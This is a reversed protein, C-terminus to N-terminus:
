QVSICVQRATNIHLLRREGVHPVDQKVFTKAPRGKVPQIYPVTVTEKPNNWKGSSLFLLQKLGTPSVLQHKRRMMKVRTITSM